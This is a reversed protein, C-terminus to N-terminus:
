RPRNVAGGAESSDNGGALEALKAVFYEEAGPATLDPNARITALIEEIRARARCTGPAEANTPNTAM